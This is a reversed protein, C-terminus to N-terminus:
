IFQVLIKEGPALQEAPPVEIGTYGRGNCHRCLRVVDPTKQVNLFDSIKTQLDDDSRRLDIYDREDSLFIGLRHLHAQIPCRYLKGDIVYPAANGELKCCDSVIKRLPEGKQPKRHFTCLEFWKQLSLIYKVHNEQLIPILREKKSVSGYDSIRVSVKPHKLADLLESDPIVTGNTVPFINMLTPLECLARLLKPLPKWLFPEGGEILIHHTMRGQLVTLVDHIVDEYSFSKPHQYCPMLSTCNKCRLNCIESVSFEVSIIPHNTLLNVCQKLFMDVTYNLSEPHFWAPIEPLVEFGSSDFELFLSFPTVTREGYALENKVYEFAPRLNYPTVIPVADPYRRKMEEPSYVPLGYYTTGQKRIDQDGFCLVKIGQKDLLYAALLGQFGAGYIVINGSYAQFDLRPVGDFFEQHAYKYHM